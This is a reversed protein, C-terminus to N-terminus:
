VKLVYSFFDRCLFKYIQSRFKRNAGYYNDNSFVLFIDISIRKSKSPLNPSKTSNQISKNDIIIQRNEPNKVTKRLLKILSSKFDCFKTAFIEITLYPGYYGFAGLLQYTNSGFLCTEEDVGSIFEEQQIL